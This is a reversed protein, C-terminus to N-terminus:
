NKAIKLTTQMNGSIVKVFYLGSNLQTMDINVRRVSSTGEGVLSGLVNYIQYHDIKFLSTITLQNKVPNPYFSLNKLFKDEASLKDVVTVKGKMDPNNENRYRTVGINSFTYSFSSQSGKLMGSDFSDSGNSLSSVSKLIGDDTWTWIVTDGREITPSAASSSIGQEWSIEYVSQANLFSIFVLCLILTIKRMTNAPNLM